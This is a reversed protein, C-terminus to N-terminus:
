WSNRRDQKDEKVRSSTERFKGASYYVSLTFTCKQERRDLKPCKEDEIIGLTQREVSTRIRPKCEKNEGRSIKMSDM